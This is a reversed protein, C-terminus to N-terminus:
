IWFSERREAADEPGKPKLQSGSAEKLRYLVQWTNGIGQTASLQLMRLVLLTM